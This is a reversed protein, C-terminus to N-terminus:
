KLSSDIQDLARVKIPRIAVFKVAHKDLLKKYTANPEYSHNYISGFGLCIGAAHHQENTGWMFYYNYLETQRLLPVQDEPVIVVPCLEIPCLEITENQTIDVAAFVGRGAGEILSDDIYIKPSPLLKMFQPYCFVCQKYLAQIIDYHRAQRLLRSESYYATMYVEIKKYLFGIQYM